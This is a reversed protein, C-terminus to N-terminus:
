TYPQRHGRKVEYRKKAKKKFVIIKKERSREKVVKTIIRMNSLYPQGFEGGYVLVKDSVIKNGLKENKQYDISLVKNIISEQGKIIEVQGKIEFIYM